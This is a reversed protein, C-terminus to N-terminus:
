HCAILVSVHYKVLSGLVRCLACYDFYYSLITSQRQHSDIRFSELPTWLIYTGDDPFLVDVSTSWLPLVQFIFILLENMMCAFEFVNFAYRSLVLLGSWYDRIVSSSM